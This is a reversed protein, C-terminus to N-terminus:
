GNLHQLFNELDTRAELSFSAVSETGEDNGEYVVILHEPFREEVDEFDYSSEIRYKM